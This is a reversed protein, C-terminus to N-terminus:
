WVTETQLLLVSLIIVGQHTGIYHKSRWSVIRNTIVHYIYVHYICCSPWSRSPRPLSHQSTWYRIIHMFHAIHMVHVERVNQVNGRVMSFYNQQKWKLKVPTVWSFYLHERYWSSLALPRVPKNNQGRKWGIPLQPLPFPSPDELLQSDIPQM